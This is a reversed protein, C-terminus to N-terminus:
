LINLQKPPCQIKISAFMPAIADELLDSFDPFKSFDVPKGKILARIAKDTIRIIWPIKYNRYGYLAVGMLAVAVSVSGGINVVSRVPIKVGGIAIYPEEITIQFLQSKFEYNAKKASIIFTYNGVTTFNTMDLILIYTGNPYEQLTYMISGGTSFTVTANHIPRNSFSDIYEVFIKMKDVSGQIIIREEPYFEVRIQTTRNLIQLQFSHDALEYNNAVASVKVLYTGTTFQSTNLTLVFVNESPMMSYVNGAINLTVNSANISTNHVTDQYSAVFTVNEGWYVISEVYVDVSAPTEQIFITYTIITDIQFGVKQFSITLIYTQGAMLNLGDTNITFRYDGPSVEYITSINNCIFMEGVSLSAVVSDPSTVPFENYADRLSITLNIIDAYYAPIVLPTPYVMNIPRKQVVIFVDVPAVIVGSNIIDLRFLYTGESDFITTNAVIYFHGLDLDYPIELNDIGLNEQSYVITINEVASGNYQNIVTANISFKELWYVFEIQETLLQIKLPILVNIKVLLQAQQYNPKSIKITISYNGPPVYQSLFMIYYKGDSYEYSFASSNWNTMSVTADPIKASHNLDRYEVVVTVPVSWNISFQIQSIPDIETPLPLVEVTILISKETYNSLSAYVTLTHVGVDISSTNAVFTYLGNSYSLYNLKLGTDWQLWVNADNLSVGYSSYNVYFTFPNSWNVSISSISSDISTQRSTVHLPLYITQNNYNFEGMFIVLTYNGVPLNLGNVDGTNGQFAYTGNGLNILSGYLHFTETDQLVSARTIASKLYIGHEDVFTFSLSVKFGWEVYIDNYTYLATTDAFDVILKLTTPTPDNFQVLTTSNAGADGEIVILFSNSANLKLQGIDLKATWNGTTTDYTFNGTAIVTDGLIIKYTLSDVENEQLPIDILGTQFDTRNIFGVVITVNDDWVADIITSNYLMLITDTPTWSISINLQIFTTDNLTLLTWNWNNNKVVSVNYKIGCAINEFVVYGSQNTSSYTVSSGDTNNVYVLAGQIYNSHSVDYARVILSAMPLIVDVAASTNDYLYTITANIIDQDYDNAYSVFFRTNGVRIREFTVWGTANTTASTQYTDQSVDLNTRIVFADTVPNGDYNLVRVSITNLLEVVTIVKTLNLNFSTHHTFNYADISVTAGPIYHSEIIYNTGPLYDFYVFGSSNTVSEAIIQVSNSANKLRVRADGSITDGLLDVVKITFNALALTVNVKKVTGIDSATFSVVEVAEVDLNYKTSYFVNLTYNGLEPIKDFFVEGTSNTYESFLKVGAPSYLTTNANVVPNGDLDFVSVLLNMLMEEDGLTGLLPYLVSQYLSDIESILAFNNGAIIAGNIKISYASGSFTSLEYVNLSIDFRGSTISLGCPLEYYAFAPLGEAGISNVSEIILGIGTYDSSSWGSVYATARAFDMLSYLSSDAIVDSLYMSSQQIIDYHFIMPEFSYRTNSTGWWITRNFKILPYKYYFTVIDTANLMNDTSNWYLKYKAFVAGKEIEQIKTISPRREMVLLSEGQLGALPLGDADVFSLRVALPKNSYIVVGQGPSVDFTNSQYKLLIDPSPNLNDQQLIYVATNDDLATYTIRLKYTTGSNPDNPNIIYYDKSNGLIELGYINPNKGAEQHMSTYVVIPKDSKIDFWGDAVNHVVVELSNLVNSISTAAAKDVVEVYTNDQLAMIGIYGGGGDLPAGFVTYYTQNIGYATSFTEPGDPRGTSAEVSGGLVYITTNSKIRIVDGDFSTYSWVEGPSLLIANSGYFNDTDDVSDDNQLDWIEIKASKDFTAIYLHYRVWAYLMAGTYCWTDDNSLDTPLRDPPYKYIQFTITNNSEIKLLADAPSSYVYQEGENLIGQIIITGDTPDVVRFFTNDYWSIIHIEDSSKISVYEAIFSYGNQAIPAFNNVEAFNHNNIILNDFGTGVSIGASYLRNDILLSTGDFSVQLQDSFSPPEVQQSTYYVYYTTSDSTINVPFVLTVETYYDGDLVQQTIQYPVQKLNPNIIRISNIRAHSLPFTIHVSIPENKREIGNSGSITIPIRYLYSTNWWQSSTQTSGITEPYKVFTNNHEENLSIQHEESVNYIVFSLSLLLVFVM